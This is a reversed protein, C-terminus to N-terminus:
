FPLRYSVGGCVLKIDYPSDVQMDITIHSGCCEIDFVGGISKISIAADFKVIKGADGNIYDYHVGDDLEPRLDMPIISIKPILHHWTKDAPTSAVALKKGDFEFVGDGTIASLQVDTLLFRPNGIFYTGAPFVIPAVM